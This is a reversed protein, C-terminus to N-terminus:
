GDVIRIKVDNRGIDGREKTDIRQRQRNELGM